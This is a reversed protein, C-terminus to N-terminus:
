KRLAFSGSHVRKTQLKVIPRVPYSMHEKTVYYHVQTLQVYDFKHLKQIKELTKLSQGEVDKNIDVRILSEAEAKEDGYVVSKKYSENRVVKFVAVTKAHDCKHPCLATRHMCPVSETGVYMALVENRALEKEHSIPAAQLSVASMLSVFIFKAINM